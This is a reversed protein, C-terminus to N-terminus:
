RVATALKALEAAIAALESESAELESELADLKASAEAHARERAELAKRADSLAQETYCADKEAQKVEAPLKRNRAELAIQDAILQARTARAVARAVVPSEAASQPAGPVPVVTVRTAAVEVSERLSKGKLKHYVLTLLFTGLALVVPVPNAEVGVWLKQAARETADAFQRADEPYSVAGAAVASAGLAALAIVKKM